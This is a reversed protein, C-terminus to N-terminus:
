AAPEALEGMEDVHELAPSDDDGELLDLVAEEVAGQLVPRRMPDAEGLRDLVGAITVGANFRDFVRPDIYSSRAVAPTNGLYTAVEQVARRM